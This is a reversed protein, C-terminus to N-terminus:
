CLFALVPPRGDQWYCGLQVGSWDTIVAM